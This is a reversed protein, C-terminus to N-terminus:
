HSRVQTSANIVLDILPSNETANTNPSYNSDAPRTMFGSVEIMAAGYIVSLFNVDSTCKRAGAALQFSSSSLVERVIHRENKM